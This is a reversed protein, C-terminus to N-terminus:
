QSQDEAVNAAVVVAVVPAVVPETVAGVAFAAPVLVPATLASVLLSASILIPLLMPLDGNTLSWDLSCGTKCLWFKSGAVASAIEEAELAPSDTRGHSHM